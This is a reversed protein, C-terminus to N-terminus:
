QNPYLAAAGAIDAWCLGSGIGSPLMVSCPDMSHGLGLFHGAEHLVIHPLQRNLYDRPDDFSQAYRVDIILDMEFLQALANQRLLHGNSGSPEALGAATGFLWGWGVTNIGDRNSFPDNRCLGRYSFSIYSERVEEWTQFAQRVISVFREASVLPSGDSAIPGNDPNICYPVPITEDAWIAGIFTFAGFPHPVPAAAPSRVFFPTPTPNVGRVPM